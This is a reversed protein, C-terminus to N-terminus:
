AATTVEKTVTFSGTAIAVVSGGPSVLELDYVGKTFALAETDTADLLLTITKSADDVTIRGNLTELLLLETGGVRNKVQMRATLGVLSAPTNFQLYGGSEYPTFGSANIKNIEVTNADIVTVPFYESERPPTHAANIETMGVVSVVAARWGDTLGHGTATIRVAAQAAIATIPKYVIPTTEWRFVFLFTSGQRITLNTKVSSV